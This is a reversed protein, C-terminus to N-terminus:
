SARRAGLQVLGEAADDAYLDRDVDADADADRRRQATSLALYKGGEEYVLGEAVLEDLFGGV